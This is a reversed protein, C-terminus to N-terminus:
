DASAGEPIVVEVGERYYIFLEELLEKLGAGSGGSALQVTVVNGNVQVLAVNGHDFVRRALEDVPREGVAEDRSRFIDHGMGSLVRNTEFRLVDPRSTQKQVVTVAQGM